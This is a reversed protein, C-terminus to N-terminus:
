LFSYSLCLVLFILPYLRIITKTNMHKMEVCDDDKKGLCQNRICKFIIKVKLKIMLLITVAHAHM